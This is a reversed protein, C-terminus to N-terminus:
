VEALDALEHQGLERMAEVRLVNFRRRRKQRGSLEDQVCRRRLRGLVRWM